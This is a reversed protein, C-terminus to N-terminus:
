LTYEIQKIYKIYKLKDKSINNGLPIHFIYFPKKKQLKIINCIYM